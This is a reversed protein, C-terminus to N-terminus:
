IVLLLFFCRLHSLFSLVYSFVLFFSVVFTDIFCTLVSSFFFYVSILTIQFKVTDSIGEILYKWYKDCFFSEPCPDTVCWNTLEKLVWCRIDVIVDRIKYVAIKNFIYDTKEMLIGIKDNQEGIQEELRNMKRSKRSNKSKNRRPSRKKKKGKNKSRGKKRGRANDNNDEEEETDNEDEMENMEDNDESNLSSLSEENREKSRRIKNITAVLEGGIAFATFAGM